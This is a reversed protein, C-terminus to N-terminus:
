NLTSQVKSGIEKVDMVNSASANSVNVGFNLTQNLSQGFVQNLTTPPLIALFVIIPINMPAFASWRFLQFVPKGTEPHLNGM